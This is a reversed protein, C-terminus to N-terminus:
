SHAALDIDTLNFMSGIGSIDGIVTYLAVTVYLRVDTADGNLGSVNGNLGSVDGILNRADGRIGTCNGWINETNILNFKPGAHEDLTTATYHYLEKM